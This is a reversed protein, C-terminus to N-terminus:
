PQVYVPLPPPPEPSRDVLALNANAPDGDDYGPQYTSPAPAQQTSYVNAGSPVPVQQTSYVNQAAAAASAALLAATALPRLRAIQFSPNM